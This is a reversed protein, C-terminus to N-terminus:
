RTRVFKKTEFKGGDRKNTDDIRKYFWYAM